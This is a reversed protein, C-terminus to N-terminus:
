LLGAAHPGHGNRQRLRVGTQKARCEVIDRYTARAISQVPFHRSTHNRVSDLTVRDRPDLKDNDAALARVIFPYSAGGSVMENVKARLRDNRCVRRRPESPFGNIRPALEVSEIIQDARAPAAHSLTM